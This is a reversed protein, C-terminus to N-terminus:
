GTNVPVSVPLYDSSAPFSALLRALEPKSNIVVKFIFSLKLIGSFNGSFVAYNWGGSM